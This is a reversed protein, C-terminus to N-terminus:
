RVIASFFPFGLLCRGLENNSFHRSEKQKWVADQDVDGALHNLKAPFHVHLHHPTPVPLLTTMHPPCNESSLLHTPTIFM